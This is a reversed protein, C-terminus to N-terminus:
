PGPWLYIANSPSGAVHPVGEQDPCIGTLSRQGCDPCCPGGRGLSFAVRLDMKAVAQGERKFHDRGSHFSLGGSRM